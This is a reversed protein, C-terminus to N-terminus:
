SKFFTNMWNYVWMMMNYNVPANNIFEMIMHTMPCYHAVIEFFMYAFHMLQNQYHDIFQMMMKYPYNEHKAFYAAAWVPDSFGVKQNMISDQFRNNAKMADAMNHIKEKHHLPKMEKLEEMFEKQNPLKMM